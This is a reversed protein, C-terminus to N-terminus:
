RYEESLRALVFEKITEADQLAQAAVDQTPWFEGDYRLGTAYPTLTAALDLIELFSSDQAACLELLKEINHIFPFEIKHALLYGKVYKEAAQQAHFCATDLAASNVVCLRASAFDSETKRFWGRVLEIRENM